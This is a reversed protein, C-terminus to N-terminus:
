AFYEAHRNTLESLVDLVARFHSQALEIADRERQAVIADFIEHHESLLIVHHGQKRLSLGRLRDLQLKERELVTAARPYGTARAMLLHFEDDLRFFEPDDMAEMAREQDRLNDELKYRNKTSLGGSALFRISALELGERLFQAERIRQESLRSVFNGRSPFTDILGEERLRLLAERVPTRSAGFRAGVEAESIASRPPLSMDLIAQRLLKYIQDGAPRAADIRAQPLDSIARSGASSQQQSTM